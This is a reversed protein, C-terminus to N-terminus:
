PSSFKDKSSVQGNIDFEIFWVEIDLCARAEYYFRQTCQGKCKNPGYRAEMLKEVSSGLTEINSPDGMKDLVTSITDQVNVKKFNENTISSQYGCTAITGFLIIILLTAGITIILAFSRMLFILAKKM